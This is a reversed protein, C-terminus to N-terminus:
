KLFGIMIDRPDDQMLKLKFEDEDHGFSDLLLQRIRVGSFRYLSLRCRDHVAAPFFDALATNWDTIQANSLSSFEGIQEQISILLDSHDAQFRSLKDLYDDRGQKAPLAVEAIPDTSIGTQKEYEECLLDVADSDASIFCNNSLPDSGFSFLRAWAKRKLNQMRQADPALSTLKGTLTFPSGEERVMDAFLEKEQQQIKSMEAAMKAQEADFQEGLKLILRAQWLVKEVMEQNENEIGHRSLLDGLISTKTENSGHSGSSIGALSLHTLQAAYDDRRNQIDKVLRLFRDRDKGLPAPVHFDCFKRDVLSNLFPDLSDGTDDNEVPQCYVVRAFVPVLPVLMQERPETDPFIVAAINKM